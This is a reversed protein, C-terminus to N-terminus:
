ATEGALRRLDARTADLVTRGTTTIALRQKSVMTWPSSSLWGSRALVSVWPEAGGSGGSREVLWSRDLDWVRDATALLAFAEAGPPFVPPTDLPPVHFLRPVTRDLVRRPWRRSGRPRRRPRCVSFRGVLWQAVWLLPVLYIGPYAVWWLRDPIVPPAGRHVVLVLAVTLSILALVAVVPEVLALRASRRDVVTLREEAALAARAAAPDTVGHYAWPDRVWSGAGVADRRDGQTEGATEVPGDHGDRAGCVM